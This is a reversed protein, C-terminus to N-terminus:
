EGNDAEMIKKAQAIADESLAVGASNFINGVAVELSVGDPLLGSDRLSQTVKDYMSRNDPVDIPEPIPPPDIVALRNEIQKSLDLDNINMNAVIIVDDINEGNEKKVTYQCEIGWPRPNFNHQIYTYGSIEM